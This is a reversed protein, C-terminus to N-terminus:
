QKGCLKCDPRREVTIARDPIFTSLSISKYNWNKRREMLVTDVAFVALGAIIKVIDITAPTNPCPQIASKPSPTTLCGFCASGQQQILAYGWDADRGLGVVVIPIGQDLGFKQCVYIRTDDNDPACIALDAEANVGNTEIAEQITMPYGVIESRKVAEKVLNRSLAIAKNKYLDEEYFRQRTLCSATVTDGDFIELRGNECYGKRVLGHAIEGGLGGAGILKIIRRKAKEQVFGTVREQRDTVPDDKEDALTIPKTEFRISRM